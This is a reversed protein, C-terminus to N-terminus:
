QENEESEALIRDVEARFSPRDLRNVFGFAKWVLGFRVMTKRVNSEYLEADLLGQEYQYAMNEVSLFITENHAEWREREVSTLVDLSASDAPWGAERVKVKLAALYESDAIHRSILSLTDLRSQYTGALAVKRGEDLSHTNQRIQIALYILTAIVGISGLFEGLAGLEIISM